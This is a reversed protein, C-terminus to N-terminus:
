HEKRSNCLYQSRSYWATVKLREFCINHKDWVRRPDSQLIIRISDWFNIHFEISQPDWGLARELFGAFTVRVGQEYLICFAQKVSLNVTMDSIEKIVSTVRLCYTNISAEEDEYCDLIQLFDAPPRPYQLLGRCPPSRHQLVRWLCLYCMWM